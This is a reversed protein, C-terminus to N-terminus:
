VWEIDDDVVVVPERYRHTLIDGEIAEGNGKGGIGVWWEEARDTESLSRM